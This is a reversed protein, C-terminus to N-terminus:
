DKTPKDPPAHCQVIYTRSENLREPVQSEFEDDGYARWWWNTPVSELTSFFTQYGDVMPGLTLGIPYSSTATATLNGRLSVLADTWNVDGMYWINFGVPHHIDVRTPGDIILRGDDDITIRYDNPLNM